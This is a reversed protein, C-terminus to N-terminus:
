GAPRDLMGGLTRCLLELDQPRSLRHDGDKVLTIGVDETRLREALTLSTRWPVDPDRMGQLLRVPCDLAITDRLLLRRRGDEILARTYVLPEGYESPERIEGEEMIRRREDEDLRQWILDETFDPAAAIGVLGAVRGPRALAALLMIWGGMSSGVLVQPGETLRDLVAIADDAWLGINGDEFRGSSAGHGQYDFRVYATGRASLFRELEMAKTGTMDSKYGGLFVVGPGSGGDRRQTRRFAITADGRILTDEGARSNEATM